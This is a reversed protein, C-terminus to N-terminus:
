LRVTTRSSNNVSNNLLPMIRKLTPDYANVSYRVFQYLDPGARNLIDICRATIERDVTILLADQRGWNWSSNSQHAKLVGSALLIGGVSFDGHERGIADLRVQLVLSNNAKETDYKTCCSRGIM